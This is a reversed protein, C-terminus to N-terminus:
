QEDNGGCLSPDIQHLHTDIRPADIKLGFAVIVDIPLQEINTENHHSGEEDHIQKHADHHIGEIRLLIFQSPVEVQGKFLLLPNIYLKADNLGLWLQLQM